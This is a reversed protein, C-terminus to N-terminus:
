GESLADDPVFPAQNFPQMGSGNFGFVQTPDVAYFEWGVGAGRASLGAAKFIALQTSTLFSEFVWRLVMTDVFLVYARSPFGAIGTDILRRLLDNLTANETSSINAMAKYLLLARYYEDNLVIEVNEDVITRDIGLIRGWWDLGVGNATYINFINDYFLDRDKDINVFTQFANALALIRPSSSYQSQIANTTMERLNDRARLNSDNHIDVWTPM